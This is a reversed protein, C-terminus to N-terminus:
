KLIDSRKVALFKAKPSALSESLHSTQIWLSFNSRMSWADSETLIIEPIGFIDTIKKFIKRTAIAPQGEPEIKISSKNEIWFASNQFCFAM